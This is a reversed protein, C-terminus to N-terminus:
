QAPGTLPGDGERSLSGSPNPKRSNASRFTLSIRIKVCVIRVEDRSCFHIRILDSLKQVTEANMIVMDTYLCELPRARLIIVPKMSSPQHRRFCHVGWFLDNWGIMIYGRTKIGMRRLLVTVVFLLLLLTIGQTRSIIAGGDDDVDAPM